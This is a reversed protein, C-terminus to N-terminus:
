TRVKRTPPARDHSPCPPAADAEVVIRITVLREVESPSSPRRAKAEIGARLIAAIGHAPTVPPHVHDLALRAVVAWTLAPTPRHGHEWRSFTPSGHGLRRALATLTLGLSKRLYRLTAGSVRGSAVVLEVAARKVARKVGLPDRVAGCAACATTTVAIKTPRPGLGTAVEHVIRIESRETSACRGCTAQTGSSPGHPAPM